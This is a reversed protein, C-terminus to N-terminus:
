KKNKQYFKCFNQFPCSECKPKRATCHYRGFLIFGHHAITKYKDPITNPLKKDTQLPTKTEVFGLRNSVRHVHTDVAIVPLDYLVQGVVKATKIWIGPLKTMTKLDSPIYYHYNHFIEHAKDLQTTKKMQQNFYEDTLILSLKYINKAKMNHLGISKINQNYAEEGMDVVDQPKNVRKRLEQTVKNVQKDTTQASMIVAVVLQFPTERHLETTANPYNEAM